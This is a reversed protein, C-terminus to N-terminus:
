LYYSRGKRLVITDVSVVQQLLRCKAWQTCTHTDYSKWFLSFKEACRQLTFQIQKRFAPDMNRFVKIAQSNSLGQIASIFSLSKRVRKCSIGELKERKRTLSWLPLNGPHCPWLGLRSAYAVVHRFLRVIDGICFMWKCKSEIKISSPCFFWLGM